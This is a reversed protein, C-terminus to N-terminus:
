FGGLFNSLHNFPNITKTSGIGSGFLMELFGSGGAPANKATGGDDYLQELTNIGQNALEAPLVGANRQYNLAKISEVIIKNRATTSKAESLQQGVASMTNAYSAQQTQYSKSEGENWGFNGKIKANTEATATNANQQSISNQAQGLSLANANQEKGLTYSNDAQKNGLIYNWLNNLATNDTNQQPIPKKGAVQAFLEQGSSKPNVQMGFLESLATAAQTNFQRQQESLKQAELTPSGFLSGTRDSMQLNNGFNQNDMNSSLGLVDYMNKFDQQKQALAQAMFMPILEALRANYDSDIQAMRDGTSASNVIGRKNLQNMTKNQSDRIGREAVSRAATYNPDSTADYKFNRLENMYNQLAAMQSSQSQPSDKYRQQMPDYGVSQLAGILDQPNMYSRGEVVASPKFAATQGNSGKLSFTGAGQDWGINGPNYGYQSLFQRVGVTGQPGGPNLPKTMDNFYSIAM